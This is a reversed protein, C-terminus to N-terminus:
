DSIKNKKLFNYRVKLSLTKLKAEGFRQNIKKNYISNLANQFEIIINIKKFLNYRIGAQLGFQANTFGDGSHDKDIYSTFTCITEVDGNTNTKEHSSFSTNLSQIETFIPTQFYGGLRFFISEKIFKFEFNIPIRLNIISQPMELPSFNNAKGEINTQISSCQTTPNGTIIDQNIKPFFRLLGNPVPTAQGFKNELTFSIYNFNLGTELSFKNSIKKQFQMGAHYGIKSKHKHYVNIVAERFFSGTSDSFALIFTQMETPPSNLVGYLPGATLSTSIGQAFLPISFLILSLSTLIKM